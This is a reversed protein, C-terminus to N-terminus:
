LPENRPTPPAWTSEQPLLDRLGLAWSEGRWVIDERNGAGLTILTIVDLAKGKKSRNGRRGGQTRCLYPIRKGVAWRVWLCPALKLVDPGALTHPNDMMRDSSKIWCLPSAKLPVQGSYTTQIKIYLDIWKSIICQPVTIPALKATRPDLPCTHKPLAGQEWVAPNLWVSACCLLVRTSKFCADTQYLNFFVPAQFTHSGM